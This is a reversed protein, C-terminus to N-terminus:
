RNDEMYATFERLRNEHNALVSLIAAKTRQDRQALAALGARDYDDVWLIQDEVLAVVGDDLRADLAAAYLIRTLALTREYPGVQLSMTLADVPLSSQDRDRMRLSALWAWAYANAPTAGLLKRISDEARGRFLHSSELDKLLHGTYNQGTEQRDLAGAIALEVVAHDMLGAPLQQWRLAATQVDYLEELRDLPIRGGGDAGDAGNSGRVQKLIPSVSLYKYASTTRPVALCLIVAGLLLSVLARTVPLLRAYRDTRITNKTDDMIPATTVMVM